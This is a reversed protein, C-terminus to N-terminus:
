ARCSDGLQTMWRCGAKCHLRGTWWRQLYPSFTAHKPSIWTPVLLAAPQEKCFRLNMILTGVPMFECASQVSICHCRQKLCVMCSRRCIMKWVLWGTFREEVKGAGSPGVPVSELPGNSSGVPCLLQQISMLQSDCAQVRRHLGRAELPASCLSSM